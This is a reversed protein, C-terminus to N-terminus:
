VGAPQKLTKVEVPEWELVQNWYIIRDELDSSRFEHNENGTPDELFTGTYVQETILKFRVKQKNNPLTKKEARILTAM